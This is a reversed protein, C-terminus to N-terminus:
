SQRRFVLGRASAFNMALATASGLLLAFFSYVPGSEVTAQAAAFVAYNVGLGGSQVALYVPYTRPGARAADRRFTWKKNFWWTVTLALFASVARAVYPDSGSLVLALFVGADFAFGLAGVLAFRLFERPVGLM